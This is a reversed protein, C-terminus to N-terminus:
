SSPLPSGTAPALTASRPVSPRPTGYVCVVTDSARPRYAISAASPDPTTCIVSGPQDTTLRAIAIAGFLPTVTTSARSVAVDAPVAIAASGPPTTM